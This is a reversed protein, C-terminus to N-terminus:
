CYYRAIALLLAKVLHWPFTAVRIWSDSNKREGGRKGERELQPETNYALTLLLWLM